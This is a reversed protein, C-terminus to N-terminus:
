YYTAFVRRHVATRATMDSVKGTQVTCYTVWHDATEMRREVTCEMYAIADQLVPAGNEATFWEIGQFRDEGPRFRQLFHKLIRSQDEEGLCNLVFKDGVQLLSEIARDKAVAVTFGLPEFSAQAVWSAIMAGKVNGHAACVVYLGGSIKALARAVNSPMINKVKATTEKKTLAQALDTGAEEFVQYTSEGPAKKVRLPDSIISAGVEALSTRLTDV